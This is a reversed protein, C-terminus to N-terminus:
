KNHREELLLNLEDMPLPRSFLYGQGYQASLQALMLAQKDTEIGEVIVDIGLKGAMAIIAECMISDPISNDINKVFTRDIKLFDFNLKQLYALSSYGTGFDDLAIKVGLSKIKVLQEYVYSLDEALVSETLEITINEPRVNHKLIKEEIVDGLRYDRRYQLSSTNLSIKLDINYHQRWSELASLSEDIVYEGLEIILDNKEALPIFVDPGISGRTPHVWRALAEVKVIKNSKFDIIPQYALTIQGNRIAMALDSTLQNIGNAEDLEEQDYCHCHGINSQKHKQLASAATQVLRIDDSGDNPYNSAGMNFGVIVNEGSINHPLNLAQEITEVLATHSKYARNDVTLVAFEDGSIRAITNQDGLSKELRKAIEQLVYDGKNYGYVDNIRSLNKIDIFFLTFAKDNGKSTKIQKRIHEKLLQENPLKTLADYNSNRWLESTLKYKEIAMAALRASMNILKFDDEVPISKESHYIAFTGLVKKDGSLIPESWCAGLNAQEALSAFPAWYPHTSIDEIITRTGTFATNGCAGIGKGIKIGNIAENYFKPLSPAIGDILHEKHEDLLLISCRFGPYDLEVLQVIKLLTERLVIGSIIMELIQTRISERKAMSITRDAILNSTSEAISKEQNTSFWKICNKGMKK